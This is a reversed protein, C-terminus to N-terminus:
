MCAAPILSVRRQSLASKSLFMSTLGRRCSDRVKLNQIMYSALYSVLWPALLRSERLMELGDFIDQLIEM